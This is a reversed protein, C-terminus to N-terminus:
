AWKGIAMWDWSEQSLGTSGGSAYNRNLYFHGSSKNTALPSGSYVASDSSPKYVTIFIKYNTDAFSMPMTVNYSTSSSGSVNGWVIMLGNSFKQYGNKALSFGDNWNTDPNIFFTVWQNTASDVTFIDIGGGMAPMMISFDSSNSTYLFTIAGAYRLGQEQGSYLLIKGSNFNRKIIMLEAAQDETVDDGSAILEFCLKSSDITYTQALKSKDFLIESDRFTGNYYIYIKTGGVNVLMGTKRRAEPIALMEAETSVTRYGGLGYEEDHTAYEDDTTYPVIKGSVNIGKLDAM